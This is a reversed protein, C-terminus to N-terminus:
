KREPRRDIMLITFGNVIKERQKVGPVLQKLTNRMVSLGAPQRRVQISVVPPGKPSRNM